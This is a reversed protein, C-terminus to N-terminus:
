LKDIKNVIQKELSVIQQYNKDEKYAEGLFDDEILQKKLYDKFEGIGIQKFSKFIIGSKKYLSGKSDYWIDAHGLDIYDFNWGFLSKYTVSNKEETFVDICPIPGVCLGMKITDQLKALKYFDKNIGLQYYKQIPKPLSKLNAPVSTMTEEIYKSTM